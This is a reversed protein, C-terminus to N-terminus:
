HRESFNIDDSRRLDQGWKMNPRDEAGSVDPFAELNRSFGPGTFIAHDISGTERRQDCTGGQREGQKVAKRRRAHDKKKIM